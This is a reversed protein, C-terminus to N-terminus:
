RGVAAERAKLLIAPDVRYAHGVQPIDSDAFSDRGFCRHLVLPTDSTNEYRVGAKAREATILYEDYSQEGFRFVRPARIARPKRGDPTSLQGAGEVCFVSHFTEGSLTVSKRPGIVTELLVFPVYGSHPDRGFVEWSESFEPGAQKLSPFIMFETPDKANLELDVAAALAEPDNQIAPDFNKKLLVDPTYKGEVINQFMSFVDTGEQPEETIMPGPAHLYDSPVFWNVHPGILQAQALRLIRNDCVQWESFARVLDEVTTGPRLGFWTGVQEGAMMPHNYHTLHKYGEHKGMRQTGLMCPKGDVFSKLAQQHLHHPIHRLFDFLKNYYGPVVGFLAALHGLVQQPAERCLWTLPIRQGRYVAKSIGEFRLTLPGNDCTTCSGIWRESLAGRHPGYAYHDECAIGLRRGPLLFDRPVFEPQLEIIGDTESLLDTVITPAASEDPILGLIRQAPTTLTPFSM